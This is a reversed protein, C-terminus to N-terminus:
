RGRREAKFRRGCMVPDVQRLLAAQMAVSMATVAAAIVWFGKGQEAAAAIVWFGKGQEAAAAALPPRPLFFSRFVHLSANFLAALFVVTAVVATSPLELEAATAAAAFPEVFWSASVLACPRLSPPPPPRLPRGGGGGRIGGYSWM